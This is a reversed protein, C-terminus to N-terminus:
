TPPPVALVPRNAIHLLRQTVGGLLLGTIASHGRTGVVILDAGSREAIEAIAHAPGGIVVNGLEVDADIGQKRLDDIQESIETQVEDEDIYRDGGGKGPVREVIHAIVLRANDPRALEVAVPIARRSGESGDLALVITKFM